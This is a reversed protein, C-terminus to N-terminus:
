HATFVVELVDPDAVSAQEGCEIVFNPGSGMVVAPKAPIAGEKMIRQRMATYSDAFGPHRHGLEAFGLHVIM